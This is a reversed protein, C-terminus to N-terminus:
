TADQRVVVYHTAPGRGAKKLVGRRVLDQLDYIATRPPLLGGIMEEYQTRTVRGRALIHPFAKQQRPNLGPPLEANPQATVAAPEATHELLGEEVDLPIDEAQIVRDEAMVVARIICNQLERVNGPWDYSTLKFLAGKSLGIGSKGSLKEQLALFHRALVVINEKQERLPPTHITIVKLRFYLDERFEGRAILERLDANTAVILRVDVEFERDSGLPKIKRAAIARLLAQQVRPSAVQIEDLFLTGGDAELFAGKRDVKAETFAGRVHGFLTDLLLNEDLAGCNISIFPGASRTSLRHIAEATLQKGTGTEGIILVDVDAQAAKIIEAKFREIRPGYGVIAPIPDKRVEAPPDAVARDLLAQEKLLAARIFRDKERIEDAQRQLEAALANIATQLLTIERGHCGLEIPLAETGQPIGKAAAALRLIPRTITRSLIFILGAIILASAATVALMADVYKYGTALPLRSVDMYAVGAVVQPTANLESRFRVPAYALYFDRGFANPQNATVNLANSRGGRVDEVMRWYREFITDPRFASELGQHGLSGTFGSRALHTSLDARPRDLAESQFLIWGDPDFMFFYREEATRPFSWIPSETSNYLSLINRLTLADVWVLIYGGEAPTAMLVAKRILKQNPQVPEPFPHEIVIIPSLWVQSPRLQKIKEYFTLPIPKIESILESSIQVIQSNKAMYIVHGTNKQSIFAAGIYEIGGSTRSRALFRYISEADIREQSLNCVDLRWRELFSEVAQRASLAQLKSSREVANSIIERSISYNIYGTVMLIILVPPILGIILRTKLSSSRVAALVREFSSDPLQEKFWPM